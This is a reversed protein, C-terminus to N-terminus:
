VETVAVTRDYFGIDLRRQPITADDVRLRLTYAGPARPRWPHSWMTWTANQSQPPCVKVPVFPESANFRITLRDSTRSGGWSIGVVRYLLRSDRAIRWKEIRLPMAAQDLTAPRYERALVPVGKQHTRAAFEQMQSTAPENEDVLRIENVWKICACGYWDPVFLRVPAGHDLPLSVGNMHTALFAGARTLQDFTFIWSAGAVSSTSPQSHDDFGAVLVRRAEPLAGLLAVVENMPIGSWSCAGLLGFYAGGGNGSCELVHAGMPRVRSMLNDLRLNGPQKVLGSTKILWPGSPKLRDPYRTRVFFRENPIMPSDATLGSLDTYLRGDLGVDLPLDLPMPGEGEFGLTQLLQGGAFPDPCTLPPPTVDACRGAREVRPGLEFGISGDSATGRDLPLMRKGEHGTLVAGASVGLAARLFGRRNVQKGTFRPGPSRAGVPRV